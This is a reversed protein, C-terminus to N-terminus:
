AGNTMSGAVHHEADRGPTVSSPFDSSGPWDAPRPMYGTPGDDDYARWQRLESYKNRIERLEQLFLALDDIATDMEKGPDDSEPLRAAWDSLADSYDNDGVQADLAELPNIAGWPAGTFPHCHIYGHQVFEAFLERESVSHAVNTNKTHM